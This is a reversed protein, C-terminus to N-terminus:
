SIDAITVIIDHDIIRPGVIFYLISITIILVEHQYHPTDLHINM